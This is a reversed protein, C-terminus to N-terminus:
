IDGNIFQDSFKRLEFIRPYGFVSDGLCWLAHLTKLENFLIPAREKAIKMVIERVRSKSIGHEKALSAYTRGDQIVAYYIFLNRM